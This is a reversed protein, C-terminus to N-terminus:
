HFGGVTQALPTKKCSHTSHSNERESDSLRQDLKAEELCRQAAWTCQHHGEMDSDDDSRGPPSTFSTLAASGELMKGV